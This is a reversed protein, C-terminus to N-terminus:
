FLGEGDVDSGVVLGDVVGVGLMIGFISLSVFGSGRSVQARTFRIRLMVPMMNARVVNAIQM